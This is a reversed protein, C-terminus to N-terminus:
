ERMAKLMGLPDGSDRAVAYPDPRVRGFGSNDVEPPPAGTKFLEPFTEKITKVAEIAIKDPENEIQVPIDALRSAADLRDPRIGLKLAEIKFASMARERSSEAKLKEMEAVVTKTEEQSKAFTEIEERFKKAEGNARRKALLLNYIEQPNEAINKVLEADEGFASFDINEQM